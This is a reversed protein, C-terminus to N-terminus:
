TGEKRDTEELCIVEVVAGFLIVIEKLMQSCENNFTNVKPRENSISKMSRQIQNRNTCNNRRDRYDRSDRNDRSSRSDSRHERGSESRSDIRPIKSPQQHGYGAEKGERNYKEILKTGEEQDLEIWNVADFSDGVIPARFNALFACRM